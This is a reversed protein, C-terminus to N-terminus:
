LVGTGSIRTLIGLTDGKWVGTVHVRLNPRGAMRATKEGLGGLRYSYDALGGRIYYSWWLGLGGGGGGASWPFPFPLLPSLGIPM